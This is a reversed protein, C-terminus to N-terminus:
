VLRGLAERNLEGNELFVSDGFQAKIKKWAPKNIEV